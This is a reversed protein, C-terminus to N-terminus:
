DTDRAGKIEFSRNPHIIKTKLSARAREVLKNLLTVLLNIKDLLDQGDANELWVWSIDFLAGSGVDAELDVM